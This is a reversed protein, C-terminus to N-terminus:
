KGEGAVASAIMAVKFGTTRQAQHLAAALRRYQERSAPLMSEDVVTKTELESNVQEKLSPLLRGEERRPTDVPVSAPAPPLPQEDAAESPFPYTQLQVPTSDTGAVESPFEETEMDRVDMLDRDVSVAEADRAHEKESRRMASDLRGM